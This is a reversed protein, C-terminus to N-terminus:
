LPEDSEGCDQNFEEFDEDVQPRLQSYEAHEVKSFLDLQRPPGRVRRERTWPPDWNGRARLIKEIVEDQEPSSMASMMKMPKGCSGCLSPDELWTKAILRAWTARRIRVFESDDEVEVVEPQAATESKARVWGLERRVTTSIAGYCHIRCEYRLACHPVLLALFEAGWCLQHDRGLAPVFNGRYLVRGDDRYELRKLSVPPRDIYQLVSELNDRDGQAMRRSADVGFGSHRWSRLLEIREETIADCKLFARFVEDRFIGELPAFDLDEPAPHFVGDRTFVGLSSVAHVHPHHHLLSGFSQPAAVLAPVAKPLSPFQIELFKRTAAYAARCLEGYLKRDFLFGRRLMKPITFVLQAYPVEPLVEHVMREAWAIARKQGCSPCTGRSKCSFAVIREEKSACEENSCRLRLFGYHPDGCRVFREFLDQVRPHLPGHESAFRDDWVRLLDDLHDEVIDKLDNTYARPRYAGAAPIALASSM